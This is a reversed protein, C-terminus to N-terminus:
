SASSQVSTKRKKVQSKRAGTLSYINDLPTIKITKAMGTGFYNQSITELDNNDSRLERIENQM